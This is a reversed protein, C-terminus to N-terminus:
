DFKFGQKKDDCLGEIVEAKMLVPDVCRKTASAVVEELLSDLVGADEAEVFDRVVEALFACDLQIQQLGYKAFTEERMYEYLAKFAIRLIGVIVGNRNFPIPAFVRLKKAYEREIALLMEFNKQGRHMGRRADSARLKRPDGLLRALQADFAHVERLVIEVVLRPERPERVTMWNRSQVSNRFFHALRQGSTVSYHSMVAQAAGRLEKVLLTHADALMGDAGGVIDRAVEFCKAVGKLEFHRGIRVLALGFLGSWGLNAIDDLVGVAEQPLPQMSSDSRRAAAYFEAQGVYVHSVEVFARFFTTTNAQLGSMLHQCAVRESGFLSVLPQCDSLARFIHMMVAGEAASIEQLVDDLVDDSNKSEQLRECDGHLKRMDLVLLSAAAAFSARLATEATRVLFANFLRLLLRPLLSHLKRLADRVSHVCSVLVRTPPCGREILKSLHECLAEVQPSVFDSITDDSVMQPLEPMKQLKSFAEVAECLQPIFSETARSCVTRLAVSAPRQLDEKDGQLKSGEGRSEAAMAEEVAEEIVFCSELSKLLVACRGATFEGLVREYNEGLDLLTVSSELAEDVKLDISRLRQELAGRIQGIKGDVDALLQRFAPVERYQRLFSACSCYAKVAKGYAGADLYRQLAAPLSFLVQLKRCNRQQKLLSEIQRTRGSVGVEVRHQYETISELNRELGRLDPELGQITYNMQKIVDTARVFKSYNDYVLMQMSADLEDVEKDLMNRQSVLDPLHGNAMRDDFYKKVDFGQRDLDEDQRVAAVGSAQPPQAAQPPGSSPPGDIHYYSNLLAGVRRTGGRRETATGEVM